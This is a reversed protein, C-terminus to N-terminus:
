YSKAKGKRNIVERLKDPYSDILTRLYNRDLDQWVDRIETELNLLFSSDRDSLLRKM